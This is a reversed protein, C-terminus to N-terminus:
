REPFRKRIAEILTAAEAEEVQGFRYTKAGYDFAIAGASTLHKWPDMWPTQVPSVRLNKVQTWDFVKSRPFPIPKREISLETGDIAVLEKGAIEWVFAVLAFAGGVTWALCWLALFALPPVSNTPHGGDQVPVLGTLIGLAFFEGVAWGCLWVGLFLTRYWRGQSPVTLRLGGATEDVQARGAEPRVKM